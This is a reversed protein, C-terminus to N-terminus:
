PIGEDAIPRWPGGAPWTMDFPKGAAAAASPPMLFGELAATVERLTTQPLRGRSLFARWQASKAADESFRGTLALPTREPVETKRRRFTAEIAQCLMDGQFHFSRSIAWLDHFDKMRSNAIGLAVLAEFKEAVVTEPPYARLRPAPFELLTPLEIEAPRPTVPDGFGIDVQVPVLARALEATFTLRVASYIDEEDIRSARVTEPRFAIGDPAVPFRCINQFIRELAPIGTPGLGLLDLDRTPRHVEGGWASLLLAGKLVFQERYESRGLRYLLRELAYRGLVLQFDEGRSQSLDFLRQRVSAALDRPARRRV